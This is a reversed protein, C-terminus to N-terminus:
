ADVSSQRWNVKKKAQQVDIPKNSAQILDRRVEYGIKVNM